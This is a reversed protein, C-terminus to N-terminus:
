FLLKGLVIERCTVWPAMDTELGPVSGIQPHFSPTMGPWLVPPLDGSAPEPDRHFPVGPLSLPLALM